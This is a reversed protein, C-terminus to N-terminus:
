TGTFHFCVYHSFLEEELFGFIEVKQKKNLQNQLTLPSSSNM